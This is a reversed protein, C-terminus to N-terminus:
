RLVTMKMTVFACPDVDFDGGNSDIIACECTDYQDWVSDHVTCWRVTKM